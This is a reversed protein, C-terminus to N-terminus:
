GTIKMNPQPLWVGLILTLLGIYAQQPECDILHVLQYLCFAIIILSISLQSFFITARKDLTLCCSRWLFENKAEENENIM